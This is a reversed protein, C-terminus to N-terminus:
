RLTPLKNDRLYDIVQQLYHPTAMGTAIRIVSYGLMAATNYKFCDEVFGSGRTHRGQTYAGGELEILVNGVRYDARWQRGTCFYFETELPPGDLLRWTAEFQMAFQKRLEADLQKRAETKDVKVPALLHKNLEYTDDSVEDGFLKPM